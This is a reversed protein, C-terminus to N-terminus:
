TLVTSRPPDSFHVEIPLRTDLSLQLGHAIPVQPCLSIFTVCTRIDSQSFYRLGGLFTGRGREHLGFHKGLMRSSLNFYHLQSACGQELFSLCALRPDMCIVFQHLFCFFDFPLLTVLVIWMIRFFFDYFGGTACKTLNLFMKSMPIADLCQRPM